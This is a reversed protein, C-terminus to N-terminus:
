FTPKKGYYLDNLQKVKEQSDVHNCLKEFTANDLCLIIKIILYSMRYVTLINKLNNYANKDILGCHRLAKAMAENDMTNIIYAFSKEWAEDVTVTEASFMIISLYLVVCFSIFYMAVYMHSKVFLEQTTVM